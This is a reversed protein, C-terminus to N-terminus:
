PVHGLSRCPGILAPHVPTFPEQGRPNAVGLESASTLRGSSTCSTSSSDMSRPRLLSFFRGAPRAPVTTWENSDSRKFKTDISGYRTGFVAYTSSYNEKPMVFIKLGSKHDIEYYREGLSTSVIEKM